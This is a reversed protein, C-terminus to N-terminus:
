EAVAQSVLDCPRHSTTLALARGDAVCIRTSSGVSRRADPRAEGCRRRARTAPSRPTCRTGRGPADIGVYDGGVVRPEGHAGRDQGAGSGRLGTSSPWGQQAAVGARVADGARAFAVFFADGEPGCAAAHAARWSAPRRPPATSWRRSRTSISPSSTASCSRSGSPPEPHRTGGDSRPGGLRRRAGRARSRHRRQPRRDARTRAARRSARRAAGQAVLTRPAAATALRASPKALIPSFQRGASILPETPATLKRWPCGKEMAATVTRFPFITPEVEKGVALPESLEVQCDEVSGGWGRSRMGVASVAAERRPSADEFFRGGGACRVFRSRAAATTM